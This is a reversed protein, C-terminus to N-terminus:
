SFLMNGSIMKNFSLGDIANFGISHLILPLLFLIIMIAITMNTNKLARSTVIICGSIVLGVIYRILYILSYYESITCEIPFNKLNQISHVDWNGGHLGYEQIVWLLEPLYVMVYIITSICAAIGIKCMISYLRQPMSKLLMDMHQIYEQSFVASLSLILCVIFLLGKQIDQQFGEEGALYDWGRDYILGKNKCRVDQIYEWYQEALQFGQYRKLEIQIPRVLKGFQEQSIDKNDLQKMFIQYKQDLRYIEEQIGKMYEIKAPTIGGEIQRMYYRYGLEIEDWKASRNCFNLVQFVALLILIFFVSNGWFIKYVECGKVSHLKQEKLSIGKIKLIKYSCGYQNFYYISCCILIGCLILIGYIHVDLLHVPTGFFNYNYYDFFNEISIFSYLNYTQLFSLGGIYFGVGYILLEIVFLIAIIVYYTLENSIRCAVSYMFLGLLITVLWSLLCYLILFQAISISLICKEYGCFAQIAGNMNIRGYLCLAYLVNESLFVINIIAMLLMISIIKAMCLSTKGNEMTQYIQFLEMKKDEFVSYIILIILMVLNCLISIHSSLSRALGYGGIFELQLFKMNGYDRATKNLNKKAFKSTEFISIKQKQKVETQIKDLFVPYNMIIEIESLIQNVTANENYEVTENEFNYALVTTYQQDISMTQISKKIQKYESANVDSESDYAFLAVLEFSMMALLFIWIKKYQLLRKLENWLITKWKM